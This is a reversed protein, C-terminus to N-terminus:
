DKLLDEISFGLENLGKRVKKILSNFRKISLENLKDNELLSYYKEIDYKLTSFMAEIDRIDKNIIANKLAKQNVAFTFNIKEM